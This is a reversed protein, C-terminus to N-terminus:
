AARRSAAAWQSDVLCRIMRPWFRSPEPAPREMLADMVTTDFRKPLALQPV